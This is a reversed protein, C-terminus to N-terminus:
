LGANSDPGYPSVLSLGLSAGATLLVFSIASAALAGAFVAGWEVYSTGTPSSTSVDVMISSRSTIAARAPRSCVDRRRRPRRSLHNRAHSTKVEVILTVASRAAAVHTGVGGQNLHLHRFFNSVAAM